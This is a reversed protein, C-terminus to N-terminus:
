RLPCLGAMDVQHFWLLKWRAAKDQPDLDKPSVSEAPAFRADPQFARANLSAYLDEGERYATCVVVGCDACMFVEAQGSGQRITLVRSSDRVRLILEGAPDSFWAAGHKTCFDCDCAGPGINSPLHSIVARAQINGCYCGGELVPM